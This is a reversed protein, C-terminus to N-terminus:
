GLKRQFKANVVDYFSRDNLKVLKTEYRSKRITAVDGMNLRLAKGGDVSLYANRRANQVMRVTVVRRDSAVVCRSGMDHACIPTIIINRADPEVIPGGASLSYATSGSPTAVIVGDGGCTMAQVGDCEVSLYVIRAIAGKTVAVDNLCIDHFIIDRDRQVTVDLMMRNDLTYDGTALQALRHLETSELEAMFGMTGINVGLIPLGRKTAAKATHLITGDGGFCVVADANPLERELRSFRIDKPLEFSKDVDFPLCVTPRMGADKLIQIASRVTQFNRDRYPNPTLIVNKM